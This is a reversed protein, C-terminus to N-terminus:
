PHAPCPRTQLALWCGAILLLGLLIRPGSLCEGLLAYALFGVLVPVGLKAIRFQTLGVRHIVVFALGMGVALGYIGSALLLASAYVPARLISGLDGQLLAGGLFFLGAMCACLGAALLPPCTRTLIKLLLGYVCGGLIGLALLLTGYNSGAASGRGGDWALALAALLVLGGGALFRPNRALAREDRFAIMAMVVALPMGMVEFLSATTADTRAIGEVLLLMTLVMLGALLAVFALLRGSRLAARLAAPDRLAAILLLIPAGVLYRYCCQTLSDFHFTLFRIALSVAPALLIYTLVIPRM